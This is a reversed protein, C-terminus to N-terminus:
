HIMSEGIFHVCHSDKDRRCVSSENTDGDNVCTCVLARSSITEDQSSVFDMDRILSIRDSVFNDGALYADSKDRREQNDM